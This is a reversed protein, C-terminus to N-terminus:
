LGFALAKKLERGVVNTITNVYASYTGSIKQASATSWAAGATTWKNLNNNEFNDEFAYTIIKGALVTIKGNIIPIHHLAAWGVCAVLM